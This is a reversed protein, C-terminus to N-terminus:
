MEALKHSLDYTRSHIQQYIEFLENYIEYNNVNPSIRDVVRQVSHVAEELDKFWGIGEAAVLAIGFSADKYNPIELEVNLIDAIIQVWERGKSGGGIIRMKSISSDSFQLSCDKLSFGVGELVARAFHSRTHRATCGFFSARLHPDWHPSREGNLYPHFILGESGPKINGVEKMIKPYVSSEELKETFDNYFEEKLWRLSAAAFNTASNQYYLNGVLHHYTTLKENKEVDSTLLTVNGATALKVVGEGQKVLGCGYVEAATDATGMIIKTENSLGLVGAINKDIAGVQTTPTLVPPFVEKKLNVLSLLFPSWEQKKVDFLLSGEAEIYDTCIEGSFRYRIYDKMFLIKDIQNYHHPENEKIWLLHSLTWTPNPKNYTLDLIQKGFNENLKKSQKVSRQDNWMIVPRIVENDKDMLVAVHHPASFGIAKINKREALSLFNITKSIVQIAAEIWKEPDQEVWLPEPYYSPYSVSEEKIVKGDSRICTAKCGGSGHDLGLVYEYSM